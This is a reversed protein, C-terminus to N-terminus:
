QCTTANDSKVSLVGGIATTPITCGVPLINTGGISLNTVSCSTTSQFGNRPDWSITAKTTIADASISLAGVTGSLSKVQSTAQVRRPDSAGGLTGTNVANSVASASVNIVNTVGVTESVAQTSDRAQPQSAVLTLAPVISKSSQMMYGPVPV